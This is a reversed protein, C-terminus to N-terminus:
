ATLCFTTRKVWLVQSLTALICRYKVVVGLSMHPTNEWTTKSASNLEPSWILIKGMKSGGFGRKPDFFSGTEFFKRDVENTRMHCRKKFSILHVNGIWMQNKCFIWKLAGFIVIKPGLFVGLYTMKKGKNFIPMHCREQFSIM